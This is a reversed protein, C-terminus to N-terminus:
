RSTASQDTASRLLKPDYRRGKWVNGGRLHYQLYSNAAILLYLGASLPMLLAHWWPLRLWRTSRSHAISMAAFAVSSLILAAASYFSPLRILWIIAGLLYFPVLFTGLLGGAMLGWFKWEKFDMGAFANKSLGEWMDAFGEYMRTTILDGALCLQIKEGAAKFRRGIALDETMHARVAAHGGIREYAARRVLIFAGAALAVDPYRPDNAKKIPIIMTLATMLGSVGIAESFHGFTPRPCLSLVDLGQRIMLEQGVRLAAPHFVCDADTFLIWDTRAREFGQQVAWNKGLWGVPRDIGHVVILNPFESTLRQLVEASSDDSQDDVVIVAVAPHDQRCLSPITTPLMEAENRAPVIVTVAPLEGAPTSDNSKLVQRFTARQVTALAVWLWFGAVAGLALLCLIM